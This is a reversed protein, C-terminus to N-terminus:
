PLCKSAMLIWPNVSSLGWPSTCRGRMATNSRGSGTSLAPPCPATAVGPTGSAAVGHLRDDDDNHDVGASRMAPRLREVTVAEFTRLAALYSDPPLSILTPLITTVGTAALRGAIRGYDVQEATTFDVGDFGNIQLDVFGPVAMGSGGASPIGVQTIRGDEVSVDGEVLQDRVLAATVGLRM